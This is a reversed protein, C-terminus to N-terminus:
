SNEELPDILREGQSRVHNVDRSVKYYIMPVRQEPSQKIELSLEGQLWRDADEVPLMVPMRPHLAAMFTSAPETLITFSYGSTHKEWLGAMVLPEGQEHCIFYPQKFTGTKEGTSASVKDARLWEYYGLAPVLCCQRRGWADRFAPKSSVSELRANFTAFKPADTKSWAPVLGWRMAAVGGRYAVPVQQTPAINYGIANEAPWDQLIERWSRMNQVHNVFRGCM